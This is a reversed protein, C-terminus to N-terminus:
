VEFAARASAHDAYDDAEALYYIDLEVALDAPPLETAVSGDLVVGWWGDVTPITGTPAFRMLMSRSDSQLERYRPDGDVTTRTAVNGVYKLYEQMTNYDAEATFRFLVGQLTDGRTRTPAPPAKSRAELIGNAETEIDWAM